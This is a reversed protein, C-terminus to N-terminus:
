KHNQTPANVANLLSAFHYLTDVSPIRFTVKEIYFPLPNSRPASGGRIFSQQTCKRLQFGPPLLSPPLCQRTLTIYTHAAAFPKKGEKTQFQSHASDANSIAQSFLRCKTVCDSVKGRFSTEPVIASIGYQHRTVVWIQTTSRILHLLNGERCSWDSASGLDPNDSTICYSIEASTGLVLPFLHNILQWNATMKPVSRRQQFHGM